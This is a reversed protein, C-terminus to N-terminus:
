YSSSFSNSLSSAQGETKHSAPCESYLPVELNPISRLLTVVFATCHDDLTRTDEACAYLGDGGQVFRTRPAALLYEVGPQTM